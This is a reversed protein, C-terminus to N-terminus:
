RTRPDGDTVDVVRVQLDREADFDPDAGIREVITRAAVAWADDLLERLPVGYRGVVDVRAQALRHEEIQFDVDAAAYDTSQLRTRLLVVVERSPVTAQRGRDDLVRRGGADWSLVPRSRVIMSRVRDKIGVAVEPWGDDPERAAELARELRQAGSPDTSDTM